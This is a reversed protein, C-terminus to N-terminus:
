GMSLCEGDGMGWGRVYFGGVGGFGGGGCRGKGYM